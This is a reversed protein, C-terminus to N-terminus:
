VSIGSQFWSTQLSNRQLISNYIAQWMSIFAFKLKVSWVLVAPEAQNWPELTLCDYKIAYKIALLSGLKFQKSFLIISISYRWGKQNTKVKFSIIERDICYFSEIKKCFSFEIRESNIETVKSPLFYRYFQSFHFFHITVTNGRKTLLSLHFNFM